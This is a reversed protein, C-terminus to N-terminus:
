IREEIFTKLKIIESSYESDTIGIVGNVLISISVTKEERFSFGIKKIDISGEELLYNIKDILWEFCDRDDNIKELFKNIERNLEDDEELWEIYLIKCNRNYFYEKLINIMMKSSLIVQYYGNERHKKVMCYYDDKSPDYNFVEVSNDNLKKRFVKGYVCNM